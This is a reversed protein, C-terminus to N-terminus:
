CKTYLNQYITDLKSFVVEPIFYKSVLERGEHALKERLIPSIILAEMQKALMEANGFDFFLASEEDKLFEPLCGVPTSIVPVGYSMSELVSMPLGEQKSTMCYAYAEQFYQMRLSGDVWGPLEVSASLGNQKIYSRVKATTEADSTGCMVLKWEPYRKVVKAFASLLTDYGKNINFFAAFLFYKKANNGLPQALVPNYLYYVPTQVNMDRELFDKWMKGLVVVCDAKSMTERFFRDDKFGKIQNGVHLHLITRKNWLKAYIFFPYIVKMGMGPTTHIHIIDYCPLKFLAICLARFLYLLKWLIGKNIQCQLWYCHYKKWIFSQEMSKIVTSVGGKMKRSDGVIMVKPSKCACRNQNNMM